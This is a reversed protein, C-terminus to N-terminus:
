EICKPMHINQDHMDVYIDCSRIQFIEGQVLCMTKYVDPSSKNYYYRRILTYGRNGHEKSFVIARQKSITFPSRYTKNLRWSGMDDCALDRPNKLKEMDM